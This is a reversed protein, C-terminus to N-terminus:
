KLSFSSSSSSRVHIRPVGVVARRGVELLFSGVGGGSVCVVDHLLARVGGSRSGTRDSDEGADGEQDHHGDSECDSEENEEVDLAEDLCWALEAM